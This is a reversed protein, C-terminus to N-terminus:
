QLSLNIEFNQKNIKNEIKKVEKAILRNLDLVFDKIGASASYKNAEAEARKKEARRKARDQYVHTDVEDLLDNVVSESEIDNAIEKLRAEADEASPDYDRTEKEIQKAREEVEKELVDEGENPVLYSTTIWCFM